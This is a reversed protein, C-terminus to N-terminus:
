PDRQITTRVVKTTVHVVSHLTKNSASVFDTPTATPLGTFNVDQAAFHPATTIKESQLQADPTSANFALFISLPLFGGLLGFGFPKFNDKM